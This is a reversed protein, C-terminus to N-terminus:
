LVALGGVLDFHRDRTYLPLGHEIALASVWVDNTPIPTGKRRLAAFVRAYLHTTAEDPVLVRIGDRGLFRALNEENATSGTGALFGARLEALVVLPVSIVTASRFRTVAEPVGRMFDVYRNTDVAFNM